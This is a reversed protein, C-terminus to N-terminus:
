RFSLRKEVSGDQKQIILDAHNEKALLRATKVAKDKNKYSYSIPSDNKCSVAWGNPHPKVYYEDGHPRIRAYTM